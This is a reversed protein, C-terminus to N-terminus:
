PAESAGAGDSAAGGDSAGGGGGGDSSSGSEDGPQQQADEDAQRAREPDAQAPGGQEARAREVIAEAEAQPILGLKGACAPWAQWGQIRQLYDARAIQEMPHAQHPYGAGGVARWSSLTFQLGGYFTNGTNIAWDGSSECQALQLWVGDVIVTGSPTSTYGPQGPRPRAVPNMTPHPIYLWAGVPPQDPDVMVPNADYVAWQNSLGYASAISAATDGEEVRHYRGRPVEDPPLLPLASGKPAGAGSRQPREPRPPTPKRVVNRERGRGRARAAARDPRAPAPQTSDFAPGAGVQPAPAIAEFVPTPTAQVLRPEPVLGLMAPISPLDPLQWSVPSLCVLALLAPLFRRLRSAATRKTAVAKPHPLFVDM